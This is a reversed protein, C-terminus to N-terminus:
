GKWRYEHKEWGEKFYGLCLYCYALNVQPDMNRQDLEISRKFYEIAFILKRKEYLFSGINNLTEYNKKKLTLAKRYYYLAKISGEKQYSKGLLNYIDPDRCSSDVFELLHSRVLPYKGIGFYLDSLYYRTKLHNPEIELAKKYAAEAQEYKEQM